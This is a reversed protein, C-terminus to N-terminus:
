LKNRFFKVLQIYVFLFVSFNHWEVVKKGNKVIGLSCNAQATFSAFCIKFVIVSFFSM